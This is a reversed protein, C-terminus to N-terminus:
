FFSNIIPRGIQLRHTVYCWNAGETDRAVIDNIRMIGKKKEEKTMNLGVMATVHDLKRRDESFNKKSLFKKDFGETDSQSASLLLCKRDQSLRRARMWKKNEQDRPKLGTADYDPAILDMYDIIIIQPFFGSKELIDLEANIKSMTLSESSYTILKIRNILTKHRKELTRHVEKWSLPEVAKRQKYWLAGQFRNKKFRLCNYCPTHEPMEEFAEKLEKLTLDHIQEPKKKYFPGDDGKKGGARFDLECEDNQNWICDLAPILLPGCYQQLDSKKSLYIAQRREQQAQSMDGAQIFVVQKGQKAARM